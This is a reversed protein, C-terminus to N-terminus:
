TINRGYNLQVLCLHNCASCSHSIVPLVAMTDWFLVASPINIFNNDGLYLRTKFARSLLFEKVTLAFPDHMM